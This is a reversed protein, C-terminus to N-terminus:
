PFFTNKPHEDNSYNSAEQVVKVFDIKWIFPSFKFSPKMAVLFLFTDEIMALVMPFQQDNFPNPSIFSETSNSSLTQLLHTSYLSSVWSLIYVYRLPTFGLSDLDSDMDAQYCPYATLSLVPPCIPVEWFQFPSPLPFYNGPYCLTGYALLNPIWAPMESLM